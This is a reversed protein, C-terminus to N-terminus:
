EGGKNLLQVYHTLSEDIRELQRNIERLAISSVSRSVATKVIIGRISVIANRVEHEHHGLIIKSTLM